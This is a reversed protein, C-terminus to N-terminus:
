SKTGINMDFTAIIKNRWNGERRGGKREKKSALGPNSKEKSQQEYGAM